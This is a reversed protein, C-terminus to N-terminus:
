LNSQYNTNSLVVFHFFFSYEAVKVYASFDKSHKIIRIRLQGVGYKQEFDPHPRNDISCVITNFGKFEIGNGIQLGELGEISSLLKLHISFSKLLSSRTM